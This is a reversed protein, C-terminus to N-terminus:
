IICICKNGISCPATGGVNFFLEKDFLHYCGDPFGEMSEEHAEDAGALRLQAGARKCEERSTIRKCDRGSTVVTYVALYISHTEGKGPFYQTSVTSLSSKNLVTITWFAYLPPPTSYSFIKRVNKYAKYANTCFGCNRSGEGLTALVWLSCRAVSNDSMYRPLLVLLLRTQCGKKILLSVGFLRYTVIQM